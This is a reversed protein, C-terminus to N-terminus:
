SCDVNPWKPIGADGELATYRPAEGDEVLPSFGSRNRAYLGVFLSLSASKVDVSCNIMDVGNETRRYTSESNNPWHVKFGRLLGERDALVELLGKYIPDYPKGEGSQAGWVKRASYEISFFAAIFAKACLLTNSLEEYEIEFGRNGSIGGRCRFKNDTLIYDSHSISNRLKNNYFEDFIKGVSLGADHSLTKIINIKEGTSIGRKAFAKQRKPPLFDFYPNPSYGKGLRFRLLNTLVEYPADMEVIHAYLLLGMRWTTMDRDRFSKTRLILKFVDNIDNLMARSEAYPDWGKDEMGLVRLLSSFYKLIDNSVPDEPLFIPELLDIYSDRKVYFPLRRYQGRDVRQFLEIAGRPNGEAHTSLFSKYLNEPFGPCANMVDSSSFPEALAGECIARDIARYFKNYTKM